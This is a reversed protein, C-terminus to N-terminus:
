IDGEPLNRYAGLRPWLLMALKETSADEPRNVVMPCTEV